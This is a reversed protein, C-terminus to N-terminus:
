AAPSQRSREAVLEPDIEPKETQNARSMENDRSKDPFRSLFNSTKEDCYIVDSLHERYQELDGVLTKIKTNITQNLEHILSPETSPEKFKSRLFVDIEDSRTKFQSKLQTVAEAEKEYEQQLSELAKKSVSDTEVESLKGQKMASAYNAFIIANLRNQSYTLMDDLQHLALENKLLQAPLRLLVRYFSRPDKLQQEREGTELTVKYKLLLGEAIERKYSDLEQTM